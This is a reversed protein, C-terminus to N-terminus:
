FFGIFGDQRYFLHEESFRRKPLKLYRSNNNEPAFLDDLRIIDKGLEKLKQVLRRNINPSLWLVQNDAQEFILDLNDDQYSIGDELILLM